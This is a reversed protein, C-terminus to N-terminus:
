AVENQARWHARRRALAEAAKTAAQVQLTTKLEEKVLIQGPRVLLWAIRRLIAQTDASTGLARTKAVSPGETMLAEIVDAVEYQRVERLFTGIRAGDGNFAMMRHQGLGFQAPRYRADQLAGGEEVDCLSKCSEASMPAGRAVRLDADTICVAGARRVAGSFTLIGLADLSKGYLYTAAGVGLCLEQAMCHM